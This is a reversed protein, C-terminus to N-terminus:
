EGHKHLPLVYVIYWLFGALCIPVLVPWFLLWSLLVSAGEPHEEVNDLAYFVALVVSALLGLAATTVWVGCLLVLVTSVTWRGYGSEQPFYTPIPCGEGPSLVMM